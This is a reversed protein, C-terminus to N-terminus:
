KSATVRYLLFPGLRMEGVVECAPFHIGLCVHDSTRSLPPHSNNLMNDLQINLVTVRKLETVM